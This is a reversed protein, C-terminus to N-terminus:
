IKALGEAGSAIAPLVQIRQSLMDEEYFSEKQMIWNLLAWLQYKALAGTELIQWILEFPEFQLLQWKWINAAQQARLVINLLFWKM